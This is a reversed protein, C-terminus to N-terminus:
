PPPSTANRHNAPRANTIAATAATPSAKALELLLLSAGTLWASKVIPPGVAPRVAPGANETGAFFIAIHSNMMASVAVKAAHRTAKPNIRLAVGWQGLGKWLIVLTASIVSMRTVLLKVISSPTLAALAPSLDDASRQVKRVAAAPMM